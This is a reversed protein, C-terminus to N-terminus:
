CCHWFKNTYVGDELIHAVHLTHIPKKNPSQKSEFELLHEFSLKVVELNLKQNFPHSNLSLNNM